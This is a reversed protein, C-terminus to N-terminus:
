AGPGIWACNKGIDGTPDAQMQPVPRKRQDITPIAHIRHRLDMSAALITLCVIWSPAPASESQQGNM